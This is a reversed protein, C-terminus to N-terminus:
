LEGDLIKSLMKEAGLKYALFSAQGLIGKLKGWRDEDRVADLYEHGEWSIEGELAEFPNHWQQQENFEPPIIRPTARVLLGQLVEYSTLERRMTTTTRAHSTGATHLQQQREVTAHHSLYLLGADSLYWIHRMIFDDAYRVKLANGVKDLNAPTYGQTDELMVLIERCLDMDRKRSGKGQQKSM